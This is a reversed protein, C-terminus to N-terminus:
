DLGAMLMLLRAEQARKAAQGLCSCGSQRSRRLTLELAALDLLFFM